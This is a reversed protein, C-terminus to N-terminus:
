KKAPPLLLIESNSGSEEIQQEAAAGGLGVPLPFASVRIPQEAFELLLPTGSEVNLADGRILLGTALGLPGLLVAGFVSAGAAVAINKEGKEWDKRKDLLKIKPQEPGLIEIYKLALIVEGPRGFAGPRKVEGVEAIVRSGKPAVLMQDIIIDETLEIRVNDGKKSKGPGVSDIIKSKIPIDSSIELGKAVVPETLLMTLLREMRQALPKGEQITGELDQELKQIRGLAPVAPYAAQALGWEAVGIKFLLSPQEPGGVEIFNLLAQQREAISGPLSRGFMVAELSNLREIIGGRRLEGYVLMESKDMQLVASADDAGFSPIATLLVLLIVTLIKKM